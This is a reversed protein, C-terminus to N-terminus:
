VPLAGLLHRGFKTTHPAQFLMGGALQDRPGCYPLLDGRERIRSAAQRLKGQDAQASDHWSWRMDVFVSGGVCWSPSGKPVLPEPLDSGFRDGAVLVNKRGVLQVLERRM